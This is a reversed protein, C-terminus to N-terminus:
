RGQESLKKWGVDQQVYSPTLQAAECWDVADTNGQVVQAIPLASPRAAADMVDWHSVPLRDRYTAGSGLLTWAAAPTELAPDPPMPISEPSAIWPASMKDIVGNVLLFWRGYLQDIQADITSLVWGDPISQSGIARILQARLSCFGAVPIDRPWSLGQATAVAVRLGTFSGPGVGCVIHTIQSLGGPALVEDIMALLHRNHARPLDRELAREATESVWAVSCAETATDIALVSTMLPYDPSILRM